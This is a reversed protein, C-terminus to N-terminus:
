DILLLMDYFLCIREPINRLIFGTIGELTKKVNECFM